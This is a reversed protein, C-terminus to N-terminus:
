GRGSRGSPGAGGLGRLEPLDFRHRLRGDPLARRVVVGRGYPRGLGVSGPARGRRRRAPPDESESLRQMELFSETTDRGVGGIRVIRGESDCIPFATERLWRVEKDTARRIRYNLIIREGARVRELKELTEARDEPLILDAWNELTDGTLAAKRALGFVAEFASSLFEWRLTRADRIWLVESSAEAFEGLMAEMERLSTEAQRAETIDVHTGVLRVARGAEDRLIDGLALIWRVEGDIPRIIRYENEYVAGGGSLARMCPANRGFGTTRICARCGTRM